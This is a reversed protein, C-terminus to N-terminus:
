INNNVGLLINKGQLHPESKINYDVNSYKALKIKSLKEKKHKDQKTKINQITKAIKM